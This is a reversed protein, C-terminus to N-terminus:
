FKNGPFWSRHDKSDQVPYYISTRCDNRSLVIHRSKKNEISRGATDGLDGKGISDGSRRLVKVLHNLLAFPWREALGLWIGEYPPGLKRKILYIVKDIIESQTVALLSVLHDTFLLRSRTEEM